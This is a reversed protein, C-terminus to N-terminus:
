VWFLVRPQQQDLRHLGAREALRVAEAYEEHTIRRDLEPYSRAKYCPRYQDMINVYTDASIEEALFDVIDATGALGGPLVLHRILLGRLAVGHKDMRLDGVQRHMEAVAAQNVSPYDEVKSLRQAVSEDAYKMDPMYIDVVGDLLRLTKISDYGGTNYVLSLQLGAQAAILVGALIQPVIHTPSVFNINHCGMRQLRLMMTALEDPEVERGEGLQSIEANQCYQCRLNCWAFFITGSGGTGVLPTEEGFHPNYSSVWAREGTRCAAGKRSERRNVGCERPCIDCAKLRNYAEEVREQLQGSRLLKLYGPEFGMILRREAHLM